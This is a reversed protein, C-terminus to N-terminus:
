KPIHRSLGARRRSIFESVGQRPSRQSRHQKAPGSCRRVAHRYSRIPHRARVARKAARSNRARPRTRARLGPRQRYRGIRRRASVGRRRDARGNARQRRPHNFCSFLQDYGPRDACPECTRRVMGMVLARRDARSTRAGDPGSHRRECGFGAGCNCDRDSRRFLRKVRQNCYCRDRHRRFNRGSHGAAPAAASAGGHGGGDARWDCAGRGNGFECLAYSLRLTQRRLRAHSSRGLAFPEADAGASVDLRRGSFDLIRLQFSCDCLGHSFDSCHGRQVAFARGCGPAGCLGFVTHRRVRLGCGTSTFVRTGDACSRRGDGGVHRQPRASRLARPLVDAPFRCLVHRGSRCRHGAIVGSSFGGVAYRHRGGIKVVAGQPVGHFLLRRHHRAPRGRGAGACAFRGAGAVGGADDHSLALDSLGRRHPRVPGPRRRRRQRRGVAAFQRRRDLRQERCCRCAGSDLRVDAHCDARGRGRADACRGHRSQARHCSQECREHRVTLWRSKRQPMDPCATSPKEWFFPDRILQWLARYAAISILVWYGFLTFSFPILQLWGRRIPALMILYTFAGNGALLNFLCLFLLAQPFIPDFSAAALALWILYLAWFLPNLLGALVTGGIFFIFGFFGLVGATRILHLPRRTHVLLTQMYGKIWRSRQRLWQGARCSAEEYTTSDVIGVRYGKQGIRIGLDADETVNFPDWAHLERLIDIRFHNSTGGLPIPIGLRELGPLVQDFWLAYDLTFMRTLWNENVNYYNLRCQLCATNPLSRRFTAVVKRLQDPEPRDEADYIVLYEGRAVRLAFNCAKPKTQPESQPVVIIEFVGELGLSRAAEITETDGRELVIKIDLKGLPYDLERLSQALRPLMAAERFMPVLVTFVPLDETKLTRAALAVAEDVEASRGGGISVLIGKFVFNGLYFIGIAVNLVILTALPALALGAMIASVVAYCVMLQPATFVTRASMEPDLEALEFVARRSLDEAFATQVTIVIDFKSVVVFEIDAGWRERAFLLTEPGPEATAIFLRGDDRRWPMTLRNAYLEDDALRLLKRDPPERMLDVFPLDFNQAYAEYYLRPDMWNRSLLADGLRVNWRGALHVAEDLQALSIVRRGVLLDGLARDSPSLPM